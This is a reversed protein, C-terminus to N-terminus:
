QIHIYRVGREAYTKERCTRSRRWLTDCYYVCNYQIYVSVVGIYEICICRYIRYVEGPRATRRREDYTDCYYVCNYVMYVM